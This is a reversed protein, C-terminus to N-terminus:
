FTRGVIIGALYMNLKSLLNSEENYQMYMTRWIVSPVKSVQLSTFAPLPIDEVVYSVAVSM